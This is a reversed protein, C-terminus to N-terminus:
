VKRDIGKGKDADESVYKAIADDEAKSKFIAPKQRRILGFPPPEGGGDKSPCTDAVERVRGSSIKKLVWVMRAWLEGTLGTINM